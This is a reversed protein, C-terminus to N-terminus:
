KGNRQRAQRVQTHAHIWGAAGDTEKGKETYCLRQHVKTVTKATRASHFHPAMMWPYFVRCSHVCENDRRKRSKMEAWNMLLCHQQPTHVTSCGCETPRPCFVALHIFFHMIFQDFNLPTTTSTDMVELSLPNGRSAMGDRLLLASSQACSHWQAGNRPTVQPWTKM